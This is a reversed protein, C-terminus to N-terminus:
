GMPPIVGHQMLLGLWDGIHWAEVVKDDKWHMIHAGLVVASKGTPPVPVGALPGNFTATFVWRFGCINGQVVVDDFAVNCGPYATHINNFFQKHGEFGVYDPFPPVHYIIDPAFLEKLLDHDNTNWAKNLLQIKRNIDDSM